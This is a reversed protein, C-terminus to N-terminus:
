VSVGECFWVEVFVKLSLGRAWNLGRALGWRGGGLCVSLVGLGFLGRQSILGWELSLCVGGASFV